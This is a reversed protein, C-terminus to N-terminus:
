ATWLQLFIPHDLDEIMNQMIAQLVRPHAMSPGPGMLIATPITSIGKDRNIEYAMNLDRGTINTKM